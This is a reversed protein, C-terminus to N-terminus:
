HRPILRIILYTFFMGMHLLPLDLRLLISSYWWVNQQPEGYVIEPMGSFMNPSWLTYEGTKKHFDESAKKMGEVGLMDGQPLEQNDLVIPSFYVVTLLLFFVVAAVHPLIVKYNFYKM